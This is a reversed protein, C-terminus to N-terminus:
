RANAAAAKADTALVARLIEKSLATADVGDANILVIVAVNKDPVITLNTATGEQGGTHAVIKVGDFDSMGFGYGYHDPSGTTTKQATWMLDRTARSILKDSLMAIAYLAMDNASSLWGGGPIKYSSDMPSADAVRGDKVTYFTARDAIQKTADDV